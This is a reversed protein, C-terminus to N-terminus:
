LNEWKPLHAVLTATPREQSILLDNSWSYDPFKGKPDFLSKLGDSRGAALGAELHNFASATVERARDDAM